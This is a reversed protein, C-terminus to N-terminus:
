SRVPVPTRHSVLTPSRGVLPLTAAALGTAAFWWGIDEWVGTGSGFFATAVGVTGVVAVWIPILRARALGALLV